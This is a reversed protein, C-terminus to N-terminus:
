LRHSGMVEQTAVVFATHFGRWTDPMGASQQELDNIMQVYEPGVDGDAETDVRNVAHLVALRVMLSSVVNEAHEAVLPPGLIDIRASWRALARISETAPDLDESVGSAVLRSIEGYLDEFQEYAELRQQRLWHAHEVAAQDQVQQRVAEASREAGVKAGWVAAAGGVGTGLFGFAAAILAAIGQDM